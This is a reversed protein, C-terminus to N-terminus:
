TILAQQESWRLYEAPRMGLHRVFVRNLHSLDSFGWKSALGTLSPRPMVSTLEEACRQVRLRMVTQGYTSPASEYLQHLRRVSIAFRQAVVAPSVDAYLLHRSVYHEIAERVSTASSPDGVVREVPEGQSLAGVLSTLATGAAVAHASELTPAVAWLARMTDAVVASMGSGGSYTFVRGPLPAGVPSATKPLRFSIARWDDLYDLAFPHAADVITFTGAPSLAESSGQRVLCRGKLMLNVFVVDETVRRVESDGHNITQDCAAIEAGNVDGFPHTDVWGPLGPRKWSDQSGRETPRLPTFAECVVERWYSYQEQRPREATNWHQM